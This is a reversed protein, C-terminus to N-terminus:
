AGLCSICPDYGRITRRVYEEQLNPDYKGRLHHISKNVHTNLLNLNFSTAVLLRAKEVLGKEFFYEHILTGRPAEVAGVGRGNPILDFSSYDWPNVRIEKSCIEPVDLLKSITQMCTNIERIRSIMTEAVFGKISKKGMASNSDTIYSRALPGVLIPMHDDYQPNGKSDFSIFDKYNEVSFTLDVDESMNIVRIDGEYFNVDGAKQLAMNVAGFAELQNWEEQNIEECTNMLWSGIHIGERVEKRLSQRTQNDLAQSVGGVVCNLPHIAKGGIAEIIVNSVRILKLSRKKLKSEMEKSFVELDPLIMLCTHTIHSKVIESLLMLRRLSKATPPIDMGLANEISKCAAIAHSVSCMGCVKPVIRPVDEAMKGQLLREFFRYDEVRVMARKIGESDFSLELSGRGEVRTLPTITIEGLPKM